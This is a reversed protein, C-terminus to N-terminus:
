DPEACRLAEVQKLSLGTTDRISVCCFGLRFYLRFADPRNITTEVQMKKMGAQFANMESYRVIFSGYGKRRFATKVGIYGIQCKERDLARWGGTGIITKSADEFLFVRAKMYYSDVIRKPLHYGFIVATIADWNSLDNPGARYIRVIGKPVELTANVLLKEFGVCVSAKSM